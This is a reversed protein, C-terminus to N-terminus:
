ANTTLWEKCFALLANIAGVGAVTLIEKITVGSGSANVAIAAIAGSIAVYTIVKLARIIGEKLGAANFYLKM